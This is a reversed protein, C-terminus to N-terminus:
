YGAADLSGEEAGPVALINEISLCFPSARPLKLILCMVYFVSQRYKSEPSKALLCM